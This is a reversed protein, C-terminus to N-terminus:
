QAADPAPQRSHTTQLCSLPLLIEVRLGGLRESHQLAVRGGHLRVIQAIISLGLGSGVVGSAHRDGGVRYFRDFVRQRDAEPIGPGSDDVAICAEDGRRNVTLLISGGAPTYKSANDILNRLLTQLAFEGGEIVVPDDAELEISQQKARCADYLDIIAAQALQRLDCRTSAAKLQEPTFRHLALIQEISHSMRDIARTLNLLTDRDIDGHQALNHLSIKIAALPTRLEHAADAAFRQERAFAEALRGMLQNVSTIVVGLEQPYGNSAVAQLEGARRSQLTAALTRLPKLGLGVILWILAGIVPVIWFIPLTAQLVMREIIQAYLDYRQAAVIVTDNGNEHTRLVYTRWRLGNYSAFHFGPELEGLPTEPGFASRHQLAGDRWIQFVRSEGYLHAPPTTATAYLQELAQSMEILQSDLLRDGAAMGDRYGQVAAIFNALCIASVLALVLYLRISKM